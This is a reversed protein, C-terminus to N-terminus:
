SIHEKWSHFLVYLPIYSQNHDIKSQYWCVTEPSLGKPPAQLSKICTAIVLSLLSSKGKVKEDQEEETSVPEAILVECSGQFDQKLVAQSHVQLLQIFSLPAPSFSNNSSTFAYGSLTLLLAALLFLQKAVVSRFNKGTAKM